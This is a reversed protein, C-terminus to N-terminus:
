DPRLLLVATKTWQMQLILLTKLAKQRTQTHMNKILKSCNRFCGILTTFHPIAEAHVTRRLESRFSSM